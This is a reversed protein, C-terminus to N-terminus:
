KTAWEIAFNDGAAGKDSKQILRAAYLVGSTLDTPTDAVFRFM